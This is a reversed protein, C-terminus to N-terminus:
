FTLGVGFRVRRAAQTDTPEMFRDNPAGTTQEAGEQVATVHQNNLVNFVDMRANMNLGALTFDYKVNLDLAYADDTTGMCGRPCAVGQNFHSFVGYQQAWLDTPHLGYANIPRGTRFWLNGGVQLGFDFAYAGFLKVNHRRDNPLFGYDGDSLGAFDFTQTIGADDQGIDSNVYGEYNGYSQSWTYSAMLMWNDAFRRNATLEVAYYKREPEQYFGEGASWSIPDLEGDGNVDYWGEFDEGPNTMRYEHACSGFDDSDPDYCDVGYLVALQQDITIDEIVKGFERNIFRAGVSWNTGVMQEYGIIM